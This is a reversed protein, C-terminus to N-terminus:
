ARGPEDAGAHWQSWDALTSAGDALRRPDDFRTLRRLAAFVTCDGHASMLRGHFEKISVNV